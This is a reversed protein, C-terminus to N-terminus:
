NGRVDPQCIISLNALHSKGKVKNAWQVCPGQDSDDSRQQQHHDSRQGRDRSAKCLAVVYADATGAARLMIVVSPRLALRTNCASGIPSAVTGCLTASPIVEMIFGIWFSGAIMTLSNTHVSIQHSHSFANWLHSQMTYTCVCILM